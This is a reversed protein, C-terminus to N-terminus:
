NEKKAPCLDCKRIVQNLIDEAKDIDYDELWTDYETSSYTGSVYGAKVLTEHLQFEWGSNGCPRKGSFSEGERFLNLLSQQMFEGITKPDGHCPDDLELALIEKVQEDTLNM